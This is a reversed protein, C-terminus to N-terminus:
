EFDLSLIFIKNFTNMSISQILKDDKENLDETNRLGGLIFIKNNAKIMKHGFRMLEMNDYDVKIYEKSTLNVIFLDNLVRNYYSM